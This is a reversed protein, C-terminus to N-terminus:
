SFIGIMFAEYGCNVRRRSDVLFQIECIQKNAGRFCVSLAAGAPPLRLRLLLFYVEMPFFLRLLRITSSRGYRKRLGLVCEGKMIVIRDLGNAYALIGSGRIPCKYVIGETTSVSAVEGRGSLETLHPYM